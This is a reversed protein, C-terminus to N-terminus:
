DKIQKTKASRSMTPTVPEFGTGGVVKFGAAMRTEPPYALLGTAVVPGASAGLWPVDRALDGLFADLAERTRGLYDPDFKAYIETTGGTRHGLLGSVEWAPVGRRRLETAVTHRLVKPPLAPLGAAKVVKRWTTKLSAVQRGHWHVFYPEAITDLRAALIGLLPVTARYKKTQRRGPPNLRILRHRRDVQFPQLDLAADGRCGTALRILCYTRVHEPMPAKLLAVLQERTMTDPYAEGMPPLDVFPVQQVEGRKWARNLAAKGVGLVRRLYGDSYGKRALWQVFKEQEPVSVASVPKRGWYAGWLAIARKETAASPIAHAHQLWYRDLVDALAIEDPAADRIEVGALILERARERAEGLDATGTARRVKKGGERWELQWRVSGKRLVLSFQDTIRHRPM